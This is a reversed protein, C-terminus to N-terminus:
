RFDTRRENLFYSVANSGIFDNVTGLTGSLSTDISGRKRKLPQSILHPVYFLRRQEFFQFYRVTAVGSSFLQVIFALLDDLLKIIIVALLVSSANLLTPTDYIIKERLVCWKTSEGSLPDNVVLLVNIFQTRSIWVLEECCESGTKSM